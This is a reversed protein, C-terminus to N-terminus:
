PVLVRNGVADADVSDADVGDERMLRKGLLETAQREVQDAVEFALHHGIVPHSAIVDGAVGAHGPPRNEYDVPLADDPPRPDRRTLSAALNRRPSRRPSPYRPFRTVVGLPTMSGM